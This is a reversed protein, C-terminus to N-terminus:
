YMRAVPARWPELAENMQVVSEAVGTELISVTRKRGRKVKGLPNEKVARKARAEKLDEFSM